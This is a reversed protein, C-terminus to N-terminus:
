TTVTDPGPSAGSWVAEILPKVAEPIRHEDFTVTHKRAGHVVTLKYRLRDPSKAAALTPESLRQLNAASEHDAMAVVSATPQGYAVERALNPGTLVGIRDSRHGPLVEAVVQTMRELTGQEVGKSLSVVPADVPICDRAQELVTRFGHSPVAVVVVDARDCASHIDATGQLTDPLTIGELYDVNEHRRNVTTALEPNRAWLVTPANAAVVGAFATGWSGAGIVAVKM